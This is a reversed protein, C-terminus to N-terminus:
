NANQQAQESTFKKMVERMKEIDTGAGELHDRLQVDAIGNLAEAAKETATNLDELTAAEKMQMTAVIVGSGGKLNRETEAQMAQLATAVQSATEATASLSTALGALGGVVAGIITGIVPTTLTGLAAGGMIGGMMGGTAAGSIASGARGGVAQEIGGAMMPVAMMAM